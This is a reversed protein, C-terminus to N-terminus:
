HPTKSQCTGWGDAVIRGLRALESQELFFHQGGTIIDAGQPGQGTTLVLAMNGISGRLTTPTKDFPRGAALVTDIFGATRQAALSDLLLSHAASTINAHEVDVELSRLSFAPENWLKFYSCYVTVWTRSATISGLLATQTVTVVPTSSMSTANPDHGLTAVRLANQSRFYEAAPKGYGFWWGALVLVFLVTGGVATSPKTDREKRPSVGGLM